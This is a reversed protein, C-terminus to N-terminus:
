GRYLGGVEVGQLKKGLSRSGEDLVCDRAIWAMTAGVVGAVEAAELVPCNVRIYLGGRAAVVAGVAQGVGCLWQLVCRSALFPVRAGHCRPAVTCAPPQGRVASVALDVLGALMRSLPQAPTPLQLDEPLHAAEPPLTPGTPDISSSSPCSLRGLLAACV